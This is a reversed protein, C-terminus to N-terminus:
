QNLLWSSPPQRFYKNKLMSFWSAQKGGLKHIFLVCNPLFDFVVNQCILDVTYINLLCRICQLVFFHFLYHVDSMGKLMSLLFDFELRWPQLFMVSEVPSWEIYDKFTQALQFLESDANKITLWKTMSHDCGSQDCKSYIISAIGGM